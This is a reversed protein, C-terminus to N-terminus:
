VRERCSARGIQLPHRLGRAVVARDVALTGGLEEGAEGVGGSAVLEHLEVVRQRLVEGAAEGSASLLDRIERLDRADAQELRDVPELRFPLDLEGRVRRGRDDPLQLAM